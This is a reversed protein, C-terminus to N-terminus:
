ELTWPKELHYMMSVASISIFNYLQQSPKAKATALERTLVYSVPLENHHLLLLSALVRGCGRIEVHLCPAHNDDLSHPEQAFSAITRCSNGWLNQSAFTSSWSPARYVSRRWRHQLEYLSLWGLWTTLTEIAEPLKHPRSSEGPLNGKPDEVPGCRPPERRHRLHRLSKSNLWYSLKGARADISLSVLRQDSEATVEEPTACQCRSQQHRLNTSIEM